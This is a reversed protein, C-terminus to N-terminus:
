TSWKLSFEASKAQLRLFMFRCLTKRLHKGLCFCSHQEVHQLVICAIGACWVVFDHPRWRMIYVHEPQTAPLLLDEM